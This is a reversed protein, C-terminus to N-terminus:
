ARHFLNIKYGKILFFRIDKLVIGVKGEGLARCLM